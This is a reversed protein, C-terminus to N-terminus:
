NASLIIDRYNPVEITTFEPKYNGPDVKDDVFHKNYVKALHERPVTKFAQDNGITGKRGDIFDQSYIDSPM